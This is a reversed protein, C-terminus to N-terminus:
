MMTHVKKLLFISDPNYCSDTKHPTYFERQITNTLHLLLVRLSIFSLDKEYPSAVSFYEVAKM